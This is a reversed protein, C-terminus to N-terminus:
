RRLGKIGVSTSSHKRPKSKGKSKRIPVPKSLSERWAKDETLRKILDGKHIMGGGRWSEAVFESSDLDLKARVAKDWEAKDTYVKDDHWISGEDTENTGDPRNGPRWSALTRGTGGKEKAWIVGDPLLHYRAKGSPPVEKRKGLEPYDKLVEAPVPKGQNVATHVAERHPSFGGTLTTSKSPKGYLSEYEEQTMEWPEKTTAM